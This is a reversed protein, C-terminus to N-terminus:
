AAEQDAMELLHQLHVVARDREIVAEHLAIVSDDVQARAIDLLIELEIVKDRQCQINRRM